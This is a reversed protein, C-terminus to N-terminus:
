QTYHATLIDKSNKLKTVMIKLELIETQNKEFRNKRKKLLKWKKALIRLGIKNRSNKYLTPLKVGIDLAGIPISKNKITEILEHQM